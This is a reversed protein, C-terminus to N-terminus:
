DCVCMKHTRSQQTSRTSGKEKRASPAQSFTQLFLTLASSPAHSAPLCCRIISSIIISSSLSLSFFQSVFTKVSILRECVCVCFTSNENTFTYFMIKKEIPLYYFNVPHRININHRTNVHSLPVPHTQVSLSITLCLSSFQNTTYSFM